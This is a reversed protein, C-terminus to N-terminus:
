SSRPSRPPKPRFLSSLSQPSLLLSFLKERAMYDQLLEFYERIKERLKPKAGYDEIKLGIEERLTKM